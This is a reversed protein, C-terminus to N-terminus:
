GTHCGQTSPVLAQAPCPHTLSSLCTVEWGRIWGLKEHTHRTCAMVLTDVIPRSTHQQVLHDTAVRGEGIVVTVLHRDALVNHAGLGLLEGVWAMDLVVGGLVQNLVQQLQAYWVCVERQGRESMECLKVRVSVYVCVCVQCLLSGILRQPHRLRPAASIRSCLKKLLLRSVGWCCLGVVCGLM